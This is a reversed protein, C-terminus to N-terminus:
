DRRRNTRKIAAHRAAMLYRLNAGLFIIMTSRPTVPKLVVDHKNVVFSCTVVILTQRLRFQNIKLCSSSENGGPKKQTNTQRGAQKQYLTNTALVPYKAVLTLDLKQKRKQTRKRKDNQKQLHWNLLIPDPSTRVPRNSLIEDFIWVQKDLPRDDESLQAKGRGTLFIVHTDIEVQITSPPIM